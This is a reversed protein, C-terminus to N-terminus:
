GRTRSAYIAQRFRRGAPPSALSFVAVPVGGVFSTSVYDALMRGQNTDAIWGLRMSRANLQRSRWTRGGDSSRALWVDIRCSSFACDNTPMAYHVIAVERRPSDGGAVALGPVFSDASAGRPGSRVRRPRSWRVGDASTAVVIENARCDRRLRCDHWAVYVTGDAGVDASPLPPARMGPVRRARQEAIMRVPEFTAGGDRSRASAMAADTLFVLVLAGDPQIVPQVGTAFPERSPTPDVVVPTSWTLGGDASVQTALASRGVLTYSLYCRGRFPSTPWTDCTLWEKDYALSAASATAAVVPASWSRADASRSVLLETLGPSVALTAVLWVAHAADYAVVPDSVREARGRPSSNVGVGPLRGSRWRLGDTSTAFGIDMAGGSFNRGVQFVTVVTSGWAQSDPEVQTAHQGPAGRFPDRSLRRTVVECDAGRAADVEDATVIDRGRGCFVRDPAGDTEVSIRDAGDGGRLVDRGAGGD